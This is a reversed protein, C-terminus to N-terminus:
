RPQVLIMGLSAGTLARAEFTRGHLTFALPPAVEGTPSPAALTAWAAQVAEDGAGIRRGLEPLGQASWAPSAEAVLGSTREVLAVPHTLAKFTERYRELTFGLDRKVAELQDELRITQRWFRHAQIAAFVLGAVVAVFGWDPGSRAGQPATQAWAALSVFNM